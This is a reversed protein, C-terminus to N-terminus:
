IAGKMGSRSGEVIPSYMAWMTKWVEFGGLLEQEELLLSAPLIRLARPSSPPSSVSAAGAKPISKLLPWFYLRDQIREARLLIVVTAPRRLRSATKVLAALAAPCALDALFSTVVQTTGAAM